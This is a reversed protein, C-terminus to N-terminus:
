SFTLVKAAYVNRPDPNWEGAPVLAWDPPPQPAYITLPLRISIDPAYPIDFEVEAWYKCDVLRGNTEPVFLGGMSDGLQVPVQRAKEGVDQAGAKVGPFLQHVLERNDRHQHGMARLTLQRYVKVKIANFDVTSNNQAECIIRCVEGPVYCNKDFHVTMTAAGKNICCCVMVNATRQERVAKVEAQLMPYITLPQRHTVDSFWEKADAEVEVHYAVIATTKHEHYRFTGPIGAPLRFVFPFTYQGPVLKQGALNYLMNRSKIITHDGRHNVVYHETRYREHGNQDRGDPVQRTKSEAWETTEHGQLTLFIGNCSIPSNINVFVNGKVEQGAVYDARDTKLFIFNSKKFM